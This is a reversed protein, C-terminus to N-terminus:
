LVTQLIPLSKLKSFNDIHLIFYIEYSNLLQRRTKRNMEPLASFAMEPHSNIFSTLEAEKEEIYYNHDPQISVFEGEQLDLINNTSTFNGNLQFGIIKSLNLSFFLPANALQQVETKDSQILFNELFYYLENNQETESIAHQFLEVYYTVIANKIVNFYIDEFRYHWKYEKIFQLQKLDNKYVEMELISGPQFYTIKNNSTKTSKRVGKVIYKQIGFLETYANVIISSEGYFITKLVIGKTKHTM